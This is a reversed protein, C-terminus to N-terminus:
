LISCTESAGVSYPTSSPMRFFSPPVRVDHCTQTRNYTCISCPQSGNGQKPYLSLYVLWPLKEEYVATSQAHSHNHEFLLESVRDVSRRPADRPAVQACPAAAPARLAMRLRAVGCTRAGGGSSYARTHVGRCAVPCWAVGLDGADLRAASRGGRPRRGGAWGARPLPM